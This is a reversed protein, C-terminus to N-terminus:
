WINIANPRITSNVIEFTIGTNEPFEMVNKSYCNVGFHDAYDFEVDYSYKSRTLYELLDKKATGFDDYVGILSNADYILKENISRCMYILFMASNNLFM